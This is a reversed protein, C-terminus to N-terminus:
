NLNFLDLLSGNGAKTYLDIKYKLGGGINSTFKIKTYNFSIGGETISVEGSTEDPEQDDM